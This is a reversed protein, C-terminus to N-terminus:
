CAGPLPPPPPSDAGPAATPRDDLAARIATELRAELNLFARAREYNRDVAAARRDRADADAAADAALTATVLDLAARAVADPDGGGGDPLAVVGADDFGFDALNPCGWYIPVTRLLFCDLLKETFYGERRM